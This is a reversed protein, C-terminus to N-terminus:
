TLLGHNIRMGTSRCKQLVRQTKKMLVCYFFASKSAFSGDVAKIRAVKLGYPNVPNIRQYRELDDLSSGGVPKRMYHMTKRLQFSLFATM